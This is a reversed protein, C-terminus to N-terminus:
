QPEAAEQLGRLIEVLRGASLGDADALLAEPPLQRALALANARHREAEGLRGLRRALEGLGYHGLLYAPDLCLARQFDQLAEGLAGQQQLLCARLYAGAAAQPAAAIAQECCTLADALRGQLALVRALLRLADGSGRLLIDGRLLHEAQLYHGERCLLAAQELVAGDAGAGDTLPPRPTARRRRLLTVGDITLLLLDPLACHELDDAGLLLWGDASLCRALRSLARGAQLPSLASLAQRCLLLDIAHTQSALAPYHDAVLDIPSFDVMRRIEPRLAWRGDAARRFWRQRLGDPAEDFAADDFRAHRARQLLRPDAASGLISCQWGAPEPLLERLAIALSYAEEGGGCAANWLRLRRTAGRRERILSPLVEHRLVAFARRDAFFGTRGADPASAPRDIPPPDLLAALPGPPRALRPEEDVMTM